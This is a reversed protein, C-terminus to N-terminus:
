PASKSPVGLFRHTAPYPYPGLLAFIVISIVTIVEFFQFAPGYSHYLDFSRTSIVPGVGICAQFAGTMMGMIRGYYKLGFYRSVFYGMLDIEAGNALGCLMAGIIPAPEPLGSGFIVVGILLLVFFGVAVYRGHFRDLLWGSLLRGVIAAIGTASLVTTAVGLSVGRDMLMAVIQTLTGNLVIIGLCFALAM